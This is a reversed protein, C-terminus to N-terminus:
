EQQIHRHANDPARPEQPHAVLQIKPTKGNCVKEFLKVMKAPINNESIDLYTVSSSAKLALALNSVASCESTSGGDGTYDLCLRNNAAVLRRLSTCKPLFAALLMAGAATIASHVMGEELRGGTWDAETMSAEMVVTTAFTLKTLSTNRRLATALVQACKVDFDNGAINISTLVHTNKLVAALQEAGGNLELSNDALSLATISSGLLASGLFEMGSGGNNIENGSLNLFRLSTSQQIADALWMVGYDDFCGDGDETMGAIKNYGLDVATLGPLKELLVAVSRAGNIGLGNSSVNLTTLSTATEALVQSLAGMGQDSIANNSVNLERLSNWGKAYKAMVGAGEPGLCKYSFDLPTAPCAEKWERIPVSCLVEMCLHKDVAEAISGMEEDSLENLGVHLATLTSNKELARTLPFSLACGFRNFSIDLSKLAGNHVMVRSIANICTMTHVEFELDDRELGAMLLSSTMKLSTLTANKELAAAMACFGATEISGYGDEGWLLSSCSVDLSTLSKSTQLARALCEAGASRVETQSINLTQLPSAPAQMLDALVGVEMPGLICFALSLEQLHALSALFALGRHSLQLCRPALLTRVSAAAPSSCFEEIQADTCGAGLSSEPIVITESVSVEIAVLSPSEGAVCLALVSSADALEEESQEDFLGTITRGTAAAISERLQQVTGGSVQVTHSTADAFSVCVDVSTTASAGTKLKKAAPVM